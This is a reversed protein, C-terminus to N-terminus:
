RVDLLKRAEFLLNLLEISRDYSAKMDDRGRLNNCRCLLGCRILMIDHSSLEVQVTKM